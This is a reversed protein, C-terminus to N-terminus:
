KRITPQIYHSVTARHETKYESKSIRKYKIWLKMEVMLLGTEEFNLSKEPNELM